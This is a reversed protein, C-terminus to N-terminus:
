ADIMFGMIKPSFYINSPLHAQLWFHMCVMFVVLQVTGFHTLWVCDPTTLGRRFRPRYFFFQAIPAFIMIMERAGSLGTLFGIVLVAVSIVLLTDIIQRSRLMGHVVPYTPVNEARDGEIDRMDYLIEFTIEFALFFLVMIVIAPWGMHREGEAVVLPYVFGTIVFICASGFNKFFYLEKFRSFGKLTPVIKYNYGLGILQVALRWPLLKPWAFTSVVFSGIMLATCFATLLKARRAVRETGPIGNKLDESIDTVRNMLNILFWDVGVVISLAFLYRGTMLWGFTVQAAMAIFVIHYRVIALADKAMSAFSDNKDTKM